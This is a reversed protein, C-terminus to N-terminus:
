TMTAMTMMTGMATAITKMEETVVFDDYNRKKPLLNKNGIFDILWM